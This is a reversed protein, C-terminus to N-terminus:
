DAMMQTTNYVKSVGCSYISLLYIVHKTRSLCISISCHEPQMYCHLTCCPYMRCSSPVLCSRVDHLKRPEIAALSIPINEIGTYVASVENLNLTIFFTNHLDSAQARSRDSWSFYNVFKKM